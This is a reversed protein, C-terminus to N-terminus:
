GAGSDGPAPTRAEDLEQLFRLMEADFIVQCDVYAFGWKQARYSYLQFYIESIIKGLIGLV